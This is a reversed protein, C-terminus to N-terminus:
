AETKSKKGFDLEYYGGLFYASRNDGSKKNGVLCVRDKTNKETKWDRNFFQPSNEYIFGSM